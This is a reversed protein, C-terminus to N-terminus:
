SCSVNILPRLLYSCFEDSLLWNLKVYCLPMCLNYRGVGLSVINNV